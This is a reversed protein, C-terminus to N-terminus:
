PLVAGRVITGLESLRRNVAAHDLDGYRISADRPVGRVRRLSLHCHHNPLLPATAVPMRVGCVSRASAWTQVDTLLPDANTGTDERWIAEVPLHVPLHCTM